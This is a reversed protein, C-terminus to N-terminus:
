SIQSGLGVPFRQAVGLRHRSQKVNVKAAFVVDQLSPNFVLDPCIEGFMQHVFVTM